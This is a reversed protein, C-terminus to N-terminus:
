LCSSLRVSGLDKETSQNAKQSDDSGSSMEGLTADM